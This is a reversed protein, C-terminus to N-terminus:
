LQLKIGIGSLDPASDFRDGAAVGIGALKFGSLIGEGSQTVNVRLFQSDKCAVFVGYNVDAHVITGPAFASDHPLDALSVELLRFLQGRLLTIAGGYDPNTANVLNEIEKASQTEWNIRLDNVSPEPAHSVAKEDQEPLENSNEKELKWIAQDIFAVSEMSLRGSLLGHNEGPFIQVEKQALIPGADFGEVMKHITIGGVPEGNKLQWFLPNRGRYAPLLSFHINYFGLKPITFLEGPIKYGCGFVLVVDPQEVSLWDKFGTVLDNKLFRKFPINFLVASQEVPINNKNPEGISVISQIM